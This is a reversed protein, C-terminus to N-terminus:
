SWRQQETHWDEPKMRLLLDAVANAAGRESAWRLHLHFRERKDEDSTEWWAGLILPLPPEWGAGVRRRGPLLKWLSNWVKPQPCIRSAKTAETMLEELPTM